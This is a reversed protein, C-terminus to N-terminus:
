IDKKHLDENMIQDLIEQNLIGEDLLKDAEKNLQHQFYRTLVNQIELARAESKDFAFIKLLHMQTPNLAVYEM